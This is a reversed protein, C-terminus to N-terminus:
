ETLTGAEHAPFSETSVKCQAAPECGTLNCVAHSLSRIDVSTYESGLM